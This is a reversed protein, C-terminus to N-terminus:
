WRITEGGPVVLEGNITCLATDSASKSFSLASFRFFPFAGSELYDLRRLLGYYGDFQFALEVPLAVEGEGRRIESIHLTDGHFAAKVRDAGMLLLEVDSASESVGRLLGDVEGIRADIEGTDRAIDAKKSSAVRVTEVAEELGRNYRLAAVQVWILASLLAGTLFYAPFSRMLYRAYM